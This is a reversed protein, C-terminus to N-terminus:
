AVAAKSTMTGDGDDDNNHEDNLNSGDLMATTTVADGQRYATDPDSEDNEGSGGAVRHQHHRRLSQM